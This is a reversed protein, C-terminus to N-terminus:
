LVCVVVSANLLTLPMLERTDHAAVSVITIHSCSETSAYQVYRPARVSPLLVVPLSTLRCCKNIAYSRFVITHPCYATRILYSPIM